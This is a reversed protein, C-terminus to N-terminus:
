KIIQVVMCGALPYQINLGFYALDSEKNMLVDIMADWLCLCCVWSLCTHETIKKIFYESSMPLGGSVFGMGNENFIAIVRSKKLPNNALACDVLQIFKMFAQAAHFIAMGDELLYNLHYKVVKIIDDETPGNIWSVKCRAYNELEKISFDKSLESIAGPPLKPIMLKAFSTYARYTKDAL